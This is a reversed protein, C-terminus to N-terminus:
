SRIPDTPSTIMMCPEIRLEMNQVVKQIVIGLILFIFIVIEIVLKIKM